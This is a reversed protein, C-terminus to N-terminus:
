IEMIVIFCVNDNPVALFKVPSSHNLTYEVKELKKLINKLVSKARAFFILGWISEIDNLGLCFVM